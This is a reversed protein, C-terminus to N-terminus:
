IGKSTICSQVYPLLYRQNFVDKLYIKVSEGAHYRRLAEYNIHIVHEQFASNPAFGTHECAIAWQVLARSLEKSVISLEHRSYTRPAKVKIPPPTQPTEEQQAETKQNRRRLFAFLSKLIRCM